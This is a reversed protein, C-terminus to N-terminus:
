EWNGHQKCNKTLQETETIRHKKDIALNNAKKILQWITQQKKTLQWTTKQLINVSTKQLKFINKINNTMKYRLRKLLKCSFKM